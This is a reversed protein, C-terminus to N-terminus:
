QYDTFEVLTLRATQEGKVPNAGLDFVRDAVNPGAPTPPPAPAPAPRAQLQNQIAQLQQLIQQQGQKLAEIERRLEDDGSQARATTAPALSAALLLAATLTPITTRNM